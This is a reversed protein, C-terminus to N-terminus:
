TRYIKSAIQFTEEDIDEKKLLPKITKEAKIVDGLLFYTYALERIFLQNDPEVNVAQNFVMVANAYDSQQIYSKAKLFLENGQKTTGITQQAFTNNSLFFLSFILIVRKM